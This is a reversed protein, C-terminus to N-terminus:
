MAALVMTEKKQGQLYAELSVGYFEAMSKPDDTEVKAWKARALDGFLNFRGNYVNGDPMISGFLENLTSLQKETLNRAGRLNVKYLDANTLDAGELNAGQLSSRNLKAAQLKANTLDADDLNAQHLDVYCLDADKLCADQLIAQCLAIGRLSGDSFMGSTHLEEVAKLVNKHDLSQLKNIMEIKSIM